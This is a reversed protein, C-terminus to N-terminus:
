SSVIKDKFNMFDGHFVSSVRRLNQKRQSTKKQLLHNKSARRRLLIGRKTIKLRKKISKSSKLKYM